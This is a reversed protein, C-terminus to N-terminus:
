FKLAGSSVLVFCFVGAAIVIAILILILIAVTKLLTSLVAALYDGFSSTEGSQRQRDLSVFMALLAPAVVILYLIALGQARTWLGFGIVGLSFLLLVMLYKPSGHVGLTPPQPPREAAPASVEGQPSSTRKTGRSLPANCMWCREATPGCQAGCEACKQFVREYSASM